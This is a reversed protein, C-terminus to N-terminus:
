GALAAELTEVTERAELVYKQFDKLVADFGPDGDYAHTELAAIAAEVIRTRQADGDAAKRVYEIVRTRSPVTNKRPQQRAQSNVLLQDVEAQVFPERPGTGYLFWQPKVNGARSYGVVTKWSFGTGQSDKLVGRAHNRSKGAALSLSNPTFPENRAPNIRNACIWRIARAPPSDSDPVGVNQVMNSSIVQVTFQAHM